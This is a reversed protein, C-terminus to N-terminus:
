GGAFFRSKTLRVKVADNLVLGLGVAAVAVFLARGPGIPPLGPMGWLAIGCGVAWDLALLGLLIRSPCSSWFPGRERISLISALAFSLFSFFTFTGLTPLDSALGFGNWGIALVGISEVVLLVGLVSALKVWGRLNWSDPRPSPRARDTALAIKVFDTMFVLLMMGFASIVFKGTVLFVGTVLVSKLITRSIKNVVWTLIRQHIIRGNVILDVIGGLGETTMVVSASAKAVDTATRVAVGVEAQRLAPADNVGDGTMGTLRKSSQLGQVVLFKDEPLVEAFGDVEAVLRAASEGKESIAQRLEAVRRIEQLGVSRAVEQAVPLADGTLMKVSVGLDRVAAILDRADPRPPDSLLVLGALQLPEPVSSGAVALVRYGKRAAESAERELASVQDPSLACADAVTRLAGKMVHIRNGGAEVTAETRRTEPSFPAFSVRLVGDMPLGRTRAERLFALDIPDQNAEESAWAGLRVVDAESRGNKALIGTVDLRNMTITGTKDICLVEMGAADEAASLRTILVGKRALELAGVAMSVTFMVPLAVPVASLLLVLALPLIELLPLGRLLAVGFALGVLSGVILFLWRVVQSVVEELHLRPRASQVLEATRGFYTQEGTLLVVATAEGRRVVSGSYLVSDPGKAMQASEGTLASQDVGLSGEILKADAPIFDGSRLRIIDGPVLDQAPVLTWSGERLVRANVQLRSKLVDVAKSARRDQLFSILANLVLLGASVWIEARRHLVVSLLVILEIMWASLGWFKGLFKLLWRPPAEPIRNPGFRIRRRDVEAATLGSALSTGLRRLSDSASAELIRSPSDGEPGDTAPDGPTQPEPPL